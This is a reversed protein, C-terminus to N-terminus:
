HVVDDVLGGLDVGAMEGFRFQLGNQGEILRGGALLHQGLFRLGEVFAHGIGPFPAVVKGLFDHGLHTRFHLLAPVIELMASWSTSRNTMPPPEPPTRAARMAACCPARTISASSYRRPPVQTM